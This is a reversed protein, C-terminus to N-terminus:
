YQWIQCAVCSKAGSYRCLLKWHCFSNEGKKRRYNPGSCGTLAVKSIPEVIREIGYSIHSLNGIRDIMDYLVPVGVDNLMFSKTPLLAVTKPGRTIMDETIKKKMNFPYIHFAHFTIVNMKVNKRAKNSCLGIFGVASYGRELLVDCWRISPEPHSDSEM